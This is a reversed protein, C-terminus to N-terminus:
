RKKRKVALGGQSRKIPKKGPERLRAEIRRLMDETIIGSKPKM